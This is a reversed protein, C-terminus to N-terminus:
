NDWHWSRKRGRMAYPYEETGWSAKTNWLPEAGFLGAKLSIEDPSVGMDELTEALYLAYSPTCGLVTSGFDRMIQIQRATNGVSVPIVSAGLKEAGGHLGLGGTFLGYGYSVHVFDKRSAGAAVLARATEISWDDLDSATYGVVTQKGTTGSSAHIRVVDDMSCAMMGYPYADRLDQKVTFPLKKLDDITRIDDPTVGMADMKARYPKVNDYVRKITDLLRETQLAVLQERNMTEIKDYYRM